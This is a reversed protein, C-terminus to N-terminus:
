ATENPTGRTNYLRKLHHRAFLWSTINKIAVGIAYAIAVGTVGQLYGLLLILFLMLLTSWLQILFETKEQHIMNLMFGALGTATNVFQGAVMLWLLEQGAKFEEGFLGLVPDAFFTFGVLMPSYILLSLIQSQRLDHTLSRTDGAAFDRAFRPGFISALTVLVTTGLLILRYCVGFIGIEDTSAFQPLLIIPMNMAWMNLIGGAWFPALSRHIVPAPTTALQNPETRSFRLLMTLMLLTTFLLLSLHIALFQDATMDWGIWVFVGVCILVGLPLLTTEGMLALNVRRIGKLAEALVKTLSFLIAAVAAFILLYAMGVESLLSTALLPAALAVLIAIIIGTGLLLKLATLTFRRATPRQQKGELVSVTRLTYDPVGLNGISSLVMMWSTYLSYIGMGAVGLVRGLVVNMLLQLSLGASRVSLAFFVSKFQKM